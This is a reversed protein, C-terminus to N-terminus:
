RRASIYCWGVTLTITVVLAILSITYVSEAQSHYLFGALLPALIVALANVMEVLGYALGINSTRVLPRVAAAAMSRYLPSGGVFLYGIFFVAATQGRWMFLCFLGLLVQSAIMGTLAPVSGIAFLIVAGGIRAFTGTLGIQQLSLHHVDQLYVSTLQQPTSLAVFTLFLIVLLGIFHPNTLPSVLPQKGSEQEEQQVVPRRAFFIIVTAICFLVASYRFVMALGATQGIWGGVMPGVIEGVQLSGSVFSIGRQASWSGRMHTIYSNLPAVIFGALTYVILGAVFFPLNNAVAMMGAGIIGPILAARILPQTGFRDSLYGAPAQVVAMIVGLLSLVAGIQVTDIPWQQLALPYFFIFLGEGLGWVFTSLALIGLDRPIGFPLRTAIRNM